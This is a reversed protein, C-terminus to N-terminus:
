VSCHGMGERTAHCSGIGCTLSGLRHACFLCHWGLCAKGLLHGLPDLGKVLDHNRFAGLMAGLQQRRKATARALRADVSRALQHRGIQVGNGLVLFHGIGAIPVQLPADLAQDAPVRHRHHMPLVLLIGADAAVDGGIRRQRRQELDAEVMEEVSGVAILGAVEDVELAVCRRTDVRAGIEFAAEVVLLQQIEAVLQAVFGPEGGIRVRPQHRIEPAEGRDRHANAREIRDVLRAEHPIQLIAAQDRLRVALDPREDAVALRVLGVRQARDRHRVRSFSSLRIKTMLQLRCRSSPGTRPLLRIM